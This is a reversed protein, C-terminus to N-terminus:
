FAAYGLLCIASLHGQLLQHQMLLQEVANLHQFAQWVSHFVAGM